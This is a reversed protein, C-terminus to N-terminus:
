GGRGSIISQDYAISALSKRFVSAQDQIEELKDHVWGISQQQMAAQMIASAIELQSQFPMQPSREMVIHLAEYFTEAADKTLKLREQKSYDM